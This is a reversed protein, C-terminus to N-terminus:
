SESSPPGPQAFSRRARTWFALAIAAGEDNLAKSYALQSHADIASRAHLL